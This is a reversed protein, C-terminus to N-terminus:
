YFGNMKRAKMHQAQQYAHAVDTNFGHDRAVIHREGTHPHEWVGLNKKQIYDGTPHGTNGHYDRFKQILPHQDVHDLHGEKAPTGLWHKGNNQDHFRRLAQHFDEHSIGKPHSKTKTIQRFEGPKIDRAHGVHTWEHKDHDHDILPPFIGEHNTKFEHPKDPHQTMTRYHQNVWHDGGEAHNQMAGLSM